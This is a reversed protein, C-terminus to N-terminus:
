SKSVCRCTTLIYIGLGCVILVDAVNMISTLITFYDVVHGYYLRDFLNSLAGALILSWALLKINNKEKKIIYGIIIVIILTIIITLINPLSLGFAVGKNFFPQWGLHNLLMNKNLWGHSAQYKFFQDLFLFFGSVIFILLRIKNNKKM